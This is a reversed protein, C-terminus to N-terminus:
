CENAILMRRKSWGDEDSDRVSCKLKLEHHLPKVQEMQNPEQLMENEQMPFPMRIFFLHFLQKFFQSKHHEVGYLANQQQKKGGVRIGQIFENMSLWLLRHLVNFM